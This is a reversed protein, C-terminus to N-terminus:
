ENKFLRQKVELSLEELADCVALEENARQYSYVMQNTKQPTLRGKQCEKVEELYRNLEKRHKRLHISVVSKLLDSSTM